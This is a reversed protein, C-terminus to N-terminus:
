AQRDIYIAPRRQATAQSIKQTLEWQRRVRGIAPRLEELVTRQREALGRAREVQDAPIPGLGSPPEWPAIDTLTSGTRVTQEAVIVSSELEDLASAWSGTV